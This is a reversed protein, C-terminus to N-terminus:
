ECPSLGSSTYVLANYAIFPQKNSIFCILWLIQTSVVYHVVLMWVLPVVSLALGHTLERSDKTALLLRRTLIFCSM